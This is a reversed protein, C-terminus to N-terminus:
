EAVAVAMVNWTTCDPERNLEPFVGLHLLKFGSHVLFGTIEEPFFYRVTHSESNDDLVQNGNMRRLHFEVHCLNRQTDLNGLSARIFTYGDHDVKRVREQPGQAVVAPGYWVDFALLGRPSLHRKATRLANIIDADEIQYSLVAFMMLVADFTQGLDANRADAQHFPVNAAQERAKQNAIALMEASRDIGVVRYGQAALRLAHNGTGCGLDLISRVPQAAYKQFLHGLLQTEGDYDKDRYLLDYAPAYVEGFIRSM